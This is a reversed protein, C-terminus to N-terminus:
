KLLRFRGILPLERAKGNAANVIGIIMLVLILFGLLTSVLNFVGPIVPVIDGFIIQLVRSLIRTAVTYGISFILLVLGQNAHFRAFYSRRAAFIPILVLLGLYSLAAVVCNDQLDRPDYQATYDSPSMSLTSKGCVPCRLSNESISSGCKKCYMVMVKKLIFVAAM